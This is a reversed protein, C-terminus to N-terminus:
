TYIAHGGKAGVMSQIKNPLTNTWQMFTSM